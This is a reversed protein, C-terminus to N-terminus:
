GHAASVPLDAKRQETINRCQVNFTMATMVEPLTIESKM